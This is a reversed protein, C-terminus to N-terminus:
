RGGGENGSRALDGADLLVRCITPQRRRVEREIRGIAERVDGRQLQARFHVGLALLVQRPALQMTLVKTVAAVDPDRGVAERVDAVVSPLASEGILLGRCQIGLGLAATALILGIGMSAVGDAWAVHFHHGIFVGGFALLLGLLDATDEFVITMVSPEKTLEVYQLVSKGPAVRRRRALLERVGIVWSTGDFAAGVGLVVYNWTPDGLPEPHRVHLLGEYFSVGGGVGFILMAVILSWFYLERGYGFPHEDDPPRRSLRMGLLLLVQNGVDVTSHIAEALVASSGSFGAAAFKAAAIGGNAAAAAWVVWKSGGEHGGGTGRCGERPDAADKAHSM